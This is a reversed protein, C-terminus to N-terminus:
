APVSTPSVFSFKLLFFFLLFCCIGTFILPSSFKHLHTFGASKRNFLEKIYKLAVFFPAVLENNTLIQTILVTNFKGNKNNKDM